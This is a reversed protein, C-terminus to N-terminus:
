SNRRCVFLYEVGLRRTIFPVNLNFYLNPRRVYWRTPESGNVNHATPFQKEVVFYESLSDRFQEIPQVNSYLWYRYPRRHGFNVYSVIFRGGVTLLDAIEAFKQKQRDAFYEFVGQAVVLDFPAHESEIPEQLIDCESLNQSHEQLAIDIGYYRINPELLKALTAPGCGVDLLRYEKGEALQNVLRSVKLMRHHPEAYKMNEGLWFDHKYVTAPTEAM